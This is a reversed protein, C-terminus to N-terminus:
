GTAAATGVLLDFDHWDEILDALSPDMILSAPAGACSPM